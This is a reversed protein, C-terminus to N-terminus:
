TTNWVKPPLVTARFARSRSSRITELVVATVLLVIGSLVFWPFPSGSFSSSEMDVHGGRHPIRAHVTSSALSATSGPALDLGVRSARVHVVDATLTSTNKAVIGRQAQLISVHDLRASALVEIAVASGTVTSRQIQVGPASLQIGVRSPGTVTAGNVVVGASQEVSLATRTNNTLTAGSVTTQDSGVALRVGIDNGSASVNTLRGGTSRQVIVGDDKDASATLQTLVAQNSGTLVAFGAGANGTSTDQQFLVGTVNHDAVFGSGGNGTAKDSVAVPRASGETFRAGDQVDSTFTDGVLTVQGAGSVVAGIECHDFISFDARGSTGTRWAVGELPSDNYGLYSFRSAVIDLDSNREYLLFPRGIADQTEPGGAAADWSEVSVHDFIAMAQSGGLYVNPQDALRVESVSPAAIRLVTGQAQVLAAQLLFLGAAVQAAWAPDNVAAVVAPLGVPHSADFPVTRTLSTGTYLSIENARLVM